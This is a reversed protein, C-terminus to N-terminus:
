DEVSVNCNKQMLKFAKHKYWWNVVFTLVAVAAGVFAAFETASLGFVVASSGAIYTAASSHKEIMNM